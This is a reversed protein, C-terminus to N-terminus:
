SFGSITITFLVSLVTLMRSSVTGKSLFILVLFVKLFLLYACKVLSMDVCLAVTVANSTPDLPYRVDSFSCLSLFIQVKQALPVLGFSKRSLMEFSAM